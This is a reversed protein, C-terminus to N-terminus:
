VYMFTSVYIYYVETLHWLNSDTLKLQCGNVETELIEIKIIAQDHEEELEALMVEMMRREKIVTKLREKLQKKDWLITELEDQMEHLHMEM